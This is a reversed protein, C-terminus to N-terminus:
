SASSTADSCHKIYQSLKAMLERRDLPKSMYDNCGVQICKEKDGKMANATLAIIPTDIGLNRIAKTAHYGDMVPMQIDMFILDFDQEQIKGLAEQGNNVITTDFGLKSLISRILIQNTSDDEAVLIQGSLQSTDWSDNSSTSSRHQDLPRQQKPDLGVPLTLTFTSGSGVDSRLTLEGGLLHALERTIALGLGTGGYKRTTSGDAQAFSQFITVQKDKPIGIGTDEVAFLVYPKSTITQLTVHLHVHGHETFKIANNILNVLCQHIRTSDSRLQHPVDDAAVIQFDIGKETALPQMMSEIANLIKALSCDKMECSLKGAEIKSVDLIDDILTLLSQSSQRILRVSMKQESTLDEFGLMESFGIIANMPTRIEHSMNALFRSKTENAKQAQEAMEKANETQEELDLNLTEAINLAAQLEAEALKQKELQEQAQRQLYFHCNDVRNLGNCIARAMKECMNYGCASCNLIDAEDRKGMAHYIDQIEDSAPTIIADTSISRDVYGRDYLGKRWFRAISQHLKDIVHHEAEGQNQLMMQKRHKILAELEDVSVKDHHFCTGTGGNCGLHCNLVDIVLPANGKQIQEYLGELYPYVQSSGEITRSRTEIGPIERQLTQLLGGPSSFGAGREPTPNVFPSEPFEDLRQKNQLFFQTISTFTVNYAEIGVQQFERAKAACPSIVMISHGQYEPYFERIMKITHVMPSDVPALYPLLEPQYLEIYSVIAPCPQTIVCAPDQSRLYEVYSKVTLEAGFSVDFCADVGLSKLWGNIRLYDDPFNSAISPAIIACMKESHGLADMARVFDDSLIRAGHTCATLCNGCGICLDGNITVHDGSGDNCYKVPCAAICKHCNVCTEADVQLIKM